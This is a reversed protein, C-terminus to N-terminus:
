LVEDVELSFDVYSRDGTGIDNNRYRPLKKLKAWAAYRYPQQPVPIWLAKQVIGACDFIRQFRRWDFSDYNINRFNMKLKRRRARINMINTYAETRMVDAYETDEHEIPLSFCDDEFVESGGYGVVGMQLYGNTNTPDDINWRSYRFGSLPADAAIYYFEDADTIDIDITQGVITFTPDNSLLLQINASTTFNHNRIFITDVFLSNGAGADNDLQIGTIVTSASRWVSEELDNNVNNINFADTTSAMTSNSTWNTGNGRSEIDCMVRLRVDNYNLVNLEIGLGRRVRVDLEVGLGVCYYRSLYPETLYPQELYGKDECLVYGLTSTAILQVGMAGTEETFAFLEVAMGKAGFAELEVGTGTHVTGAMYPFTMYAEELYGFEVNTAM